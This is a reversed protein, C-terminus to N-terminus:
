SSAPEALKAELWAAGLAIDVGFRALGPFVVSQMTEAFLRLRSARSLAGLRALERWAPDEAAGSFLEDEVTARLMAPLHPGVVDRTGEEHERALHAWGLRSHNVEDRLIEHMAARARDDGAEEVLEALLATSLTETVCSMAVVEYLLAERRTLGAPAVRGVAPLASSPPESAAVSLHSGRDGGFHVVLESCREAHRLEDAAANRALNVVADHAGVAALEEALWRFRAAAILEFRHRMQWTRQALARARSENATSDVVPPSATM